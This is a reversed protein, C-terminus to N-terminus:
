RVDSWIDSVEELKEKLRQMVRYRAIYVAGTTREHVKAVEKVSTQEVTSEWFMSWTAATFEPRIEDAAWRFAELRSEIILECTADVEPQPISNLQERVESAGTALDPKRRTIAKVIENRAIRYLWARFPPMGEAPEWGEVARSISAFVKQALDDADADQLGRSRALRFVVPRYIALFASWAAGDAPDKVRLILSESTEPWDKM